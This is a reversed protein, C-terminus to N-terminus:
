SGCSSPGGRSCWGAARGPERSRRGSGDRPRDSRRCRRGRPLRRAVGPQERLQCGEHARDRRAPRPRGPRRPGDGLFTGTGPGFFGDYFGLALGAVIWFPLWAVKRAQQGLGFGPRIALFALIAILLSRSSTGWCGRTWRASPSPGAGAGVATAAMGPIMDRFRVIGAARYRLAATLSGFCSQLKNTGLALHPPLGAALLAPLTIIGGGGAISDVFGAARRRRPRPPRLRPSASSADGSQLSPGGSSSYTVVM